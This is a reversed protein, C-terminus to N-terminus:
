RDVRVRRHRTSLASLFPEIWPPRYVRVLVNSQHALRTLFQDEIPGVIIATIPLSAFHDLEPTFPLLARYGLIQSIKGLSPLIYGEILVLEHERIIVADAYRRHVGLMHIEAETLDQDTNLPHIGGVRVNLFTRDDPYFASVFDSVLRTERQQRQKVPPQAEPM